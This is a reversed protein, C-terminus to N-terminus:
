KLSFSDSSKIQFLKKLSLKERELFVSTKQDSVLNNFICLSFFFFFSTIFSYVLLKKTCRPLDCLSINECKARFAAGPTSSPPTVNLGLVNESMLLELESFFFFRWFTCVRLLLKYFISWIIPIRIQLSLLKGIKQSALVSGAVTKYETSIGFIKQSIFSAITWTTKLPQFIVSWKPSSLM